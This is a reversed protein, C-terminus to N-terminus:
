FESEALANVSAGGNVIASRLAPVQSLIHDAYYHATAIKSRYFADQDGASQKAQAVLMARALQWGSMLMGALKLYPVSCIPLACTQVGTM